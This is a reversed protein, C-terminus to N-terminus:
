ALAALLEEDTMEPLDCPKRMEAEICLMDLAMAYGLRRAPARASALRTTLDAHYEDLTAHSVTKIHTKFSALNM